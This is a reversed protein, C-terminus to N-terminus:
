TIIYKSIKEAWLNYADPKIHVGDLTLQSNMEGNLEYLSYLDIYELEHTEALEKIEANFRTITSNHCISLEKASSIPLVSQIYIETDPLSEELLDLLQAYKSVCNDLNLDTLGNIGGLLFVKEPNVSQIMSIRNIMGSLSDGGHGLNCIKINPFYKQFDGLCTISDGFFVVDADYELKELCREWSLVAENIKSTQEKFGLKVFLKEDYGAHHFVLIFAALILLIITTAIIAYVKLKKSQRKKETEM